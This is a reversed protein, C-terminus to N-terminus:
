PLTVTLARSDLVLGSRIVAIEVRWVGPAPADVRRGAARYLLPQDKDLAIREQLFPGDPGAIDLAVVDGAQGGFVHAWAVVASADEAVAIRPLGAKIEAFDPVRDALGVAVLGGPRYPLPQKWAQGPGGPGCGAGPRFPDVTAGAPDRLLFEVHPFSALGSMGIAGLRAGAAVRDGRAVAVSGRRLHCYQTRWGGEHDLVVGNGCERGAVSDRAEATVARDPMGDRTARVTGAAAATGAIGAAMAARDTAAFDTGEHGDYTLPGCAADRLGPGPDRDPLFQIYCDRGLTCAVPQALEPPQSLAPGALAAAIAAFPLPARLRGQM